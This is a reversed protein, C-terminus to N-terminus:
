QGRAAIAGSCCLDAVASNDVTASRQRPGGLSLMDSCELDKFTLTKTDTKYNFTVLKHDDYVFVSNVFADILRKRGELTKTDQDRFRCIWFIIQDRTLLPRLVQEKAINAEVESKTAELESLRTKTSETIIGQETANLMNNIARETNELQKRLAPLASSETAQLKMAEDALYDVMADDM